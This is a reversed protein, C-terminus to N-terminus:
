LRRKLATISFYKVQSLHHYSGSLNASSSKSISTVTSSGSSNKKDVPLHNNLVDATSISQSPQSKQLTNNNDFSTKIEPKEFNASTQINESKPSPLVTEEQFEPPPTPPPPPLAPEAVLGISVKTFSKKSQGLPKPQAPAKETM